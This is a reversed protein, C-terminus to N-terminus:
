RHLAGSGGDGMNLAKPRDSAAIWVADMGYAPEKVLIGDLKGHVDGSNIAMLRDTEVSAVASVATGTLKIQYQEPKLHLNDRVRIEPLLFGLQEALTKRIGKLRTLLEPIAAPDAMSVLRYGIEVTIADPYPLDQWELTDRVLCNKDGPYKPRNWLLQQFEQQQHTRWGPIALVAAFQPIGTDAHGTGVGNRGDPFRCM